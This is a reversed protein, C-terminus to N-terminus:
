GLRLFNKPYILIQLFNHLLSSTIEFALIFCQLLVGEDIPMFKAARNGGDQTQDIQKGFGFEVSLSLFNIPAELNSGIFQICNDTRDCLRYLSAFSFNWFYFIILRTQTRREM